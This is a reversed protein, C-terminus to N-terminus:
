RIKFKAGIAIHDSPYKFGPLFTKELDSENPISLIDTCKLLVKRTGANFFIYDIARKSCNDGRIKVTTFKCSNNKEVSLEYVSRLPMPSDKSLIKNICSGEERPDSNFDGMIVMPTNDKSGEMKSSEFIQIRELLNRCQLGRKCENDTDKGAKLHTVSFLIVQGTNIHKLTCILYVQSSDEYSGNESDVLEFMDQKWFLACGDSYFGFKTSPSSIKPVFLGKYGALKMLPEFFGHFRDIEECAIIDFSLSDNGLLVELLRWRRLNFDLVIEPNPISNFGGYISKVSSLNSVEKSKEFPRDVNNGSSLGEALMNFQLVSFTNNTEDDVAGEVENEHDRNSECGLSVWKRKYLSVDASYKAQVSQAELIKRKIEDVSKISSVYHDPGPDERILSLRTLKTDLSTIHSPNMTSFSLIAHIANNLLFIICLLESKM